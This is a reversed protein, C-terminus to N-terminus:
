VGLGARGASRDPRPPGTRRIRRLPRCAEVGAGVEDIKPKNGALDPLGRVYEGTVREKGTPNGLTDINLYDFTIRYKQPGDEKLKLDAPLHSLRDDVSQITSSLAPDFAWGNLSALTLMALAFTLRQM